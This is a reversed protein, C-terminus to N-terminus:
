YAVVAERFTIEPLTFWGICETEPDDNLSDHSGDNDEVAKEYAADRDEKWKKMQATARHGLIDWTLSTIGDSEAYKELQADHSPPHRPKVFEVPHGKQWHESEVVIVLRLVDKDGIQYFAFQRGNNKLAQDWYALSVALNKMESTTRHGPYHQYRNAKHCLGTVVVEEVSLAEQWILRRPEKPLKMFCTFIRGLAGNNDFRKWFKNEEELHANTLKLQAIEDMRKQLVDGSPATVSAVDDLPSGTQQPALGENWIGSM